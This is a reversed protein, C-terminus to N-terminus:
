RRSRNPHPRTVRSFLRHRVLLPQAAFQGIDLSQDFTVGWKGDFTTQLGPVQDADLVPGELAQFANDDASMSFSSEQDGHGVQLLAHRYLDIVAREIGELPPESARRVM